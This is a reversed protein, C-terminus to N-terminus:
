SVNSGHCSPFGLRAQYPRKTTRIKHRQRETHRQGEGGNGEGGRGEGREKERERGRKEGGEEGGALFVV